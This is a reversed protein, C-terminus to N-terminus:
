YNLHNPEWAGLRDEVGQTAAPIIDKDPKARRFGRNIESANPYRPMSTGLINTNASTNMGQSERGYTGVVRRRGFNNNHRQGLLRHTKGFNLGFSSSTKDRKNQDILKQYKQNALSHRNDSMASFQSATSSMNNNNEKPDKFMKNSPHNMHAEMFPDLKANNTVRPLFCGDKYYFNRVRPIHQRTRSQNATDLIQNHYNRQKNIEEMDKQYRPHKQRRYSQQLEQTHLNTPSHNNLKHAHYSNYHGEVPSAM